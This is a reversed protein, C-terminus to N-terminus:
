LVLSLDVTACSFSEHPAVFTASGREWGAWMARLVALPKLASGTLVFNVKLDISFLHDRQGRFRPHAFGENDV